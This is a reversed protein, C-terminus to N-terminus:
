PVADVQVHLPNINDSWCYQWYGHVFQTVHYFVIKLYITQTEPQLM